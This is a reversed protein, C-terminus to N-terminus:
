IFKVTNKQTTNTNSVVASLNTEDKRSPLHNINSDNVFKHVTDNQSDNSETQVSTKIKENTDSPARNEDQKATRIPVATENPNESSTITVDKMPNQSQTTVTASDTTDTVIPIIDQDNPESQATGNLVVGHDKETSSSIVDEGKNDPPFTPVDHDNSHEPIVQVRPKEIVAPCSDINTKITDLWQRVGAPNTVFHSLDTVNSM